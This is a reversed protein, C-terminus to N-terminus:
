SEEDGETTKKEKGEQWGHVGMDKHTKWDVFPRMAVGVLVHAMIILRRLRAGERSGLGGNRRSGPVVVKWRPLRRTKPTTRYDRRSRPTGLGCGAPAPAARALSAPAAPTQTRQRRPASAAPPPCPASSAASARGATGAPSPPRPRPQQTLLVRHHHHMLSEPTHSEKNQRRSCEEEGIEKCSRASSPRANIINRCGLLNM